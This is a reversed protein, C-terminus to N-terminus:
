YISWIRLKYINIHIGISYNLDSYPYPGPAFFKRDVSRIVSEVVESQIIKREKLQHILDSHTLDM